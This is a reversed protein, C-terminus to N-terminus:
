PHSAGTNPSYGPAVRFAIFSMRGPTRGPGAASGRRRTGPPMSRPTRTVAIRSVAVPPGTATDGDIVVAGPRSNQVLFDWQSQLREAGARIEERVTFAVPIDPIRLVGDRTFLATLRPRDRMMVADTFEVRDTIQQFDNM